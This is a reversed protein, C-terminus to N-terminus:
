EDCRRNMRVETHDVDITCTGDEMMAGLRRLFALMEQLDAFTANEGSQVHKIRGRWLPGAASWEQWFRVIFTSVPPVPSMEAM